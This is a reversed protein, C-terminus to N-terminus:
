LDNIRKFIKYLRNTKQDIMLMIQDDSYGLKKLTLMTTLLSENFYNEIHDLENM